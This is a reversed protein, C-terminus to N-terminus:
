GGGNEENLTKDKNDKEKNKNKSRWIFTILPILLVTCFWQWNNKVFTLIEKGVAVNVKIERDFTQITRKKTDDKLDIIANITLHLHQIGPELARVNWQWETAHKISVPQEEPTVSSIQFGYGTLRAEVIDSIKIQYGEVKGKVTEKLKRELNEIPMSLHLLLKISFSQGVNVNSDPVNFVINSLVMNELLNDVFHMKNEIPKYENNEIIKPITNINNKNPSNTNEINEDPMIALYTLIVGAFVIAIVICIAIIIFNGTNIKKNRM